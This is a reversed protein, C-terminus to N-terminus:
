ASRVPTLRAQEAEVSPGQVQAGAQRGITEILEYVRVYPLQGLAELVMNTQELSLDLTIQPM